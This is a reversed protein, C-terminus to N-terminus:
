SSAKRIQNLIFERQREIHERAATAAAKSDGDIVGKCIARHEMILQEYTIGVSLGVTCIASATEYLCETLPLAERKSIIVAGLLFNTIYMMLETMGNLVIAMLLSSMQYDKISEDLYGNVAFEIEDRTLEEKLRKKNIIDIIKM